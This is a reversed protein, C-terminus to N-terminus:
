DDRINLSYFWDPSIEKGGLTSKFAIKHDNKANNEWKMDVVSYIHLKKIINVEIEKEENISQLLNYAYILTKEATKKEFHKNTWKPRSAFTFFFVFIWLYVDNCLM